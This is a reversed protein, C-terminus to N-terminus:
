QLAAEAADLDRVMNAFRDRAGSWGADHFQQLWVMWRLTEDDDGSHIRHKKAARIAVPENGGEHVSACEVWKARPALRSAACRRGDRGRYVCFGDDDTSRTDLPEWDPGYYIERTENLIRRRNAIIERTLQVTM